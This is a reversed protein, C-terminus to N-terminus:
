GSLRSRLQEVLQAIDSQAAPASSFVRGDNLEVLMYQRPRGSRRIPLWEDAIRLARIDAPDVSVNRAFVAYQLEWTGGPTITISYFPRWFLYWGFLGFLIVGLAITSFWMEWLLRLGTFRRRYSARRLYTAIGLLLVVVFPIILALYAVTLNGVHYTM